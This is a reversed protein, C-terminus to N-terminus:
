NIKGRNLGNLKSSLSDCHKREEKEKVIETPITVEVQKQM